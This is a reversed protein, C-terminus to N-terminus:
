GGHSRRKTRKSGNTMGGLINEFCVAKEKKRIIGVALL